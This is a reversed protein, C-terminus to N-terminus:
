PAGDVHPLCISIVVLRGDDLMGDSMVVVKVPLVDGEDGVNGVPVRSQNTFSGLDVSVVRKM